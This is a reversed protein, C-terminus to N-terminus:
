DDSRDSELAAEYVKTQGIGAEAIRERLQMVEGRATQWQSRAQATRVLPASSFQLLRDATSIAHEVITEYEVRGRLGHGELETKRAWCYELSARMAQWREWDIM